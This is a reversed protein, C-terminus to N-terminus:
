RCGAEARAAPLRQRLWDRMAQGYVDQLEDYAKCADAPKKLAMLSQGLFYLSDAAREGKPNAQYNALFARAAATPKGDDLYSRGALNAAWSSWKDSPYTRAVEELAKAADAYRKKEWLHFGANYAAEADGAAAPGPTAAADDRASVWAPVEAPPLTAAAAQRRSPRAPPPTPEAAAAAPAAEAPAPSAHELADLRAGVSQQLTTAVHELLRLRNANEEGQGTLARLQGEIADLRATLDALASTAPVGAPEPAAAQPSIEPSVYPGSGQFVRRQVAHLEQELREIRKEPSETKQAATPMALGALLAAGILRYRM